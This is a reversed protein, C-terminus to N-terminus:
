VKKLFHTELYVMYSLNPFICKQFSVYTNGLINLEFSYVLYM